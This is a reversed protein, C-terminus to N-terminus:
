ALLLPAIGITLGVERSLFYCIGIICFYLNFRGIGFMGSKKLVPFLEVIFRFYTTNEINPFNNPWWAHVYRIGHFLVVCAVAILAAVASALLLRTKLGVSMVAM